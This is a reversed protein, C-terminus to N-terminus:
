ILKFKGRSEKADKNRHIRKIREEKHLVGESLLEMKVKEHSKVLGNIQSKVEQDQMYRPVHLKEKLKRLYDEREKAKKDHLEQLRQLKIQKHNSVGISYSKSHMASHELPTIDFDMVDKTHIRMRSPVGKGVFQDIVDTAEISVNSIKKSDHYLSEHSFTNKHHIQLKSSTTSPMPFPDEFKSISQLKSYSRKGPTKSFSQSLHELGKKTVVIKMNNLDIM